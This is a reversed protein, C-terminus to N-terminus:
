ITMYVLHGESDYIYINDGEEVATYKDEENIRCVMNEMSLYLNTYELDQKEQKNFTHNEEKKNYCYIHKIGPNTTTFYHYIEDEIEQHMSSIVNALKDHSIMTIKGKYIDDAPIWGDTFIESENHLIYTLGPKYLYNIKDILRSIRIIMDICQSIYRKHVYKEIYHCQLMDTHRDIDEQLAVRRQQLSEILEKDNLVLNTDTTKLELINM